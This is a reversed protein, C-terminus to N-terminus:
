LILLLTALEAIAPAFVLCTLCVESLRRDVNPIPTYLGEIIRLGVAKRAEDCPDPETQYYEHNYGGPRLANWKYCPLRRIASVVENTSIAGQKYAKTIDSVQEAM